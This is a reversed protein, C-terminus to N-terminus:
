RNNPNPDEVAARNLILRDLDNFNLGWDARVGAGGGGAGVIRARVEPRINQVNLPNNFGRAIRGIVAPALERERLQELAFNRQALIDAENQEIRRIENEIRAARAFGDEVLNPNVPRIEVEGPIAELGEFDQNNPVLNDLARDTEEVISPDKNLNELVKEFEKDSNKGVIDNLKNAKPTYDLLYKSAQFVKNKHKLSEEEIKWGIDTLMKPLDKQYAYVAQYTLHRVGLLYAADWYSQTIIKYRDRDKPYAYGLDNSLVKLVGRALPGIRTDIEDYIIGFESLPTNFYMSYYSTQKKKNYSYGSM